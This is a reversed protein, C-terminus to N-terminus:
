GPHNPPFGYALPHEGVERLRLPKPEDILLGLVGHGRPSRGSLERDEPTVGYTVFEVLQRDDGLM